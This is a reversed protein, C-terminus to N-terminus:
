SFPRCALKKIIQWFISINKQWKPQKLRIENTIRKLFYDSLRFCETLYSSLSKQMKLGKSISRKIIALESLYLLPLCGSLAM